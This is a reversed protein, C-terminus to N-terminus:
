HPRGGTSDLNEPGMAARLISTAQRMSDHCATKPFHRFYLHKFIAASSGAEPQSTQLLMAYNKFPRSSDNIALTKAEGATEQRKEDKKSRKSRSTTTGTQEPCRRLTLPKV